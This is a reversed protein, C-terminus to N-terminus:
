YYTVVYMNNIVVVGMMHCIEGRGSMSCPARVCLWKYYAPCKNMELKLDWPAVSNTRVFFLGARTLLSSSDFLTHSACAAPLVSTCQVLLKPAFSFVTTLHFSFPFSGTRTQKSSPFYIFNFSHGVQLLLPRSLLLLLASIFTMSCCNRLCGHTVPFPFSHSLSFPPEVM